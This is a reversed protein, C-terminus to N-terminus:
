WSGATSSVHRQSRIRGRLGWIAQTAGRAPPRITCSPQLLSRTTGDQLGRAVLVKGANPGVTLLTATHTARPTDMPATTSFSNQALAQAVFAVVWLAVAGVSAVAHKCRRM